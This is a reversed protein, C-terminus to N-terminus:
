GGWIDDYRVGSDKDEYLDRHTIKYCLPLGLFPRCDFKNKEAEPKDADNYHLFVQGCYEGKFKERWHEVKCGRYVLMDSPKLIVKVGKKGLKGSPELYIPWEDGGLNLTTSFDCSYRDKHRELVDGKKYIRVYSYTEILNLNTQDEMTPRLNELLTEMAIDSYHSYTNPVQVDNWVGFVQNDASIHKDDILRRAVKKKNLLYAYLFSSLEKSIAEEIVIYNNKEFSM